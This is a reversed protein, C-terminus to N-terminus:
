CGCNDAKRSDRNMTNIRDFDQEEEAMAGRFVRALVGLRLSSDKNFDEERSQALVPNGGGAKAPAPEAPLVRQHANGVGGSKNPKSYLLSLSLSLSAAPHTGPIIHAANSGICPLPKPGLADRFM